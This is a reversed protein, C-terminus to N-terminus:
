KYGQKPYKIKISMYAYRKVGYGVSTSVRINIGGLKGPHNHLHLPQVTSNRASLLTFVSYVSVLELNKDATAGSHTSEPIINNM